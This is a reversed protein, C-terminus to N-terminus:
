ERILWMKILILGNVVWFRNGRSGRKLVNQYHICFKKRQPYLSVENGMEEVVFLGESKM